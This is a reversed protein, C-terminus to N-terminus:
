FDVGIFDFDIIYLTNDLILTQTSLSASSVITM